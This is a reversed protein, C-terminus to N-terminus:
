RLAECVRAYAAQYEPDAEAYKRAQGVGYMVSTHNRQMYVGVGEFGAGTADYCAAYLAFRAPMVGAARTHSTILRRPVQFAEACAQLARDFREPTLFPKITM